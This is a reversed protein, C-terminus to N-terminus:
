LVTYEIPVFHQKTNCLSTLGCAVAGVLIAVEPKTVASITSLKHVTHVASSIHEITRFSKGEVLVGIATVPRVLNFGTVCFTLSLLPRSCEAYSGSAQVTM